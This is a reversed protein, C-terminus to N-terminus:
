VHRDHDGTTETVSGRIQQATPVGDRLLYGAIEELARVCARVVEVDREGTHDPEPIEFGLGALMDRLARLGPPEDLGLMIWAASEVDALRHHWTSYGARRELRYADFAPNAGVILQGAVAQMFGDVLDRNWSGEDNLKREYYQNVELARPEAEALTHPVTGAIVPEDDVAYALEVIQHRLLSLGTTETDTYVRRRRAREPAPDPM